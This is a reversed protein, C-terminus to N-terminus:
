LLHHKNWECCHEIEIKEEQYAYGGIVLFQTGDFVVSHGRRPRKLSGALSCTRKVGDLRGIEGLVKDESYDPTPM